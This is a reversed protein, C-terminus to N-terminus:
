KLAATVADTLAAESKSSIPRGAKSLDLFLAKGEEEPLPELHLLVRAQNVTLEHAARAAVIVPNDKDLDDQDDSKGDDSAGGGGHAELHARAAAANKLDPPGGRSGNLAGLAASVGAPDAAAGPSPHHPLAWHAATDPDSDNDREFAIKRFEAASSASQMAAAGDWHLEKEAVEEEALLTAMQAM